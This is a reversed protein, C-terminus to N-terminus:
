LNGSFQKSHLAKGLAQLKPWFPGFYAAVVSIGGMQGRPRYKTFTLRMNETTKNLQVNYVIPL